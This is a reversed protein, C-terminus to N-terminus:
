IENKLLDCTQNFESVIFYRKKKTWLQGNVLNKYVSSLCTPTSQDRRWSIGGILLTLLSEKNM